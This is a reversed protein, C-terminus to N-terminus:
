ESPEDDAAGAMAGLQAPVTRTRDRFNARRSVGDALDAESVIAYRRYISETKHGSLKMAVSRPVGAREMERVATRRLDHVFRDPGADPFEARLPEYGGASGGSPTDLRPLACPRGWRWRGCPKLSRVAAYSSSQPRRRM